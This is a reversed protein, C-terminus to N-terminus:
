DVIHTARRVKKVSKSELWPQDVCQKNDTQNSSPNALSERGASDRSRMRSTLVRMFRKLYSALSAGVTPFCLTAPLVVVQQHSLYPILSHIWADGSLFGGTPHNMPTM